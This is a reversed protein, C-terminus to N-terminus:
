FLTAALTQTEWTLSFWGLSKNIFISCIASRYIDIHSTLEDCTFENCREKQRYRKSLERLASDTFKWLQNLVPLKITVDVQRLITSRWTRFLPGFHDNCSSRWRRSSSRSSWISTSTFQIRWCMGPRKLSRFSLSAILSNSSISSLLRAFM